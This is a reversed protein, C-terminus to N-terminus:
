NNESEAIKDLGRNCAGVIVDLKKTLYSLRQKRGNKSAQRVIMLKDIAENCKDLTETLLAKIEQDNM